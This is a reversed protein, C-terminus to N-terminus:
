DDGSPFLCFSIRIDHTYVHLQRAITWFTRMDASYQACKIQDVLEYIVYAPIRGAIAYVCHGLCLFTGAASCVICGDMPTRKLNIDQKRVDSIADLQWPYFARACGACILLSHSHIELEDCVKVRRLFPKNAPTQIYLKDQFRAFM